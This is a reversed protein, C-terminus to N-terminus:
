YCNGNCDPPTKIPPTKIPPDPCTILNAPCAPCCPLKNGEIPPNPCTPLKPSCRPCCAYNAGGTTQESAVILDCCAILALAALALIALNNM